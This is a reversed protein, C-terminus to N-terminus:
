EIVQDARLLLLPPITLGLAKATKLNIALEFKTPLEVPMDAPKAGRLIRDVYGAARHYLDSISPGYAMLGGVEVHEKLLFMTAVHHKLALEALRARAALIPSEGLVLLAGIRDKSIKTFAQELGGAEQRSVPQLKVGFKPAAREVARLALRHSPNSPNWLVAIVKISAVTERFVELQKVSLEPFLPSLGTINGGPRSLSRVFGAAVPDAVHVMVLPVTSTAQRAARTEVTGASVIVDMGTRVLELAMARLRDHDEAWRWEIIVNEGDTYGRARLGALFASVLPRAVTDDGRSLFGVRHSKGAAQQAEAALPTAFAGALSTLLFRRRDMCPRYFPHPHLDVVNNAM